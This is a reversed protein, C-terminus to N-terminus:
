RKMQELKNLQISGMRVRNLTKSRLMGSVTIVDFFSCTCYRNGYFSFLDCCVNTRRYFTIM